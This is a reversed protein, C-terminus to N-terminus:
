GGKGCPHPAQEVEQARDASLAIFRSILIDSCSSEHRGCWALESVALREEMARYRDNIYEEAEFRSMAVQLLLWSNSSIM